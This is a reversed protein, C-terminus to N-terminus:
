VNPTIRSSLLLLSEETISSYRLLIQQWRCRARRCGQGISWLAASVRLYLVHFFCWKGLHVRRRELNVSDPRQQHRILYRGTRQCHCIVRPCQHACRHHSQLRPLLYMECDGTWTLSPCEPRRRSKRNRQTPYLSRTEM